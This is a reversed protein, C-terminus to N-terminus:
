IESGWFVLNSVELDICTNIATFTQVEIINQNEWLEILNKNILSIPNLKHIEFLEFKVKSNISMKSQMPKCSYPFKNSLLFFRSKTEFIKRERSKIKLVKSFSSSLINFNFFKKKPFNRKGNLFSPSNTCFYSELNNDSLSLLMFNSLNITEQTMQFLRQTYNFLILGSSTLQVFKKSNLKYFLLTGTEKELKNISLSIAPQSISLRESALAINGCIILTYFINLLDFKLKGRSHYYSVKSKRKNKIFKTKTLFTSRLNRSVLKKKLPFNLKNSAWNEILNSSISM